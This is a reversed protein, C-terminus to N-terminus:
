RDVGDKVAEICQVFCLVGAVTEPLGQFQEIQEAAAIKDGFRCRLAGMMSVAQCGYQDFHRGVHLLMETLLEGDINEASTEADRLRHELFFKPLEVDVRHVGPQVFLSQALGGREQSVAVHGHQFNGLFHAVAAGALEAVRERAAICQCRPLVASTRDSRAKKGDTESRISGRENTYYVFPVFTAPLLSDDQFLM